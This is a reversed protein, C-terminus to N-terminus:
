GSWPFALTLFSNSYVSPKEQDAQSLESQLIHGATSTGGTVSSEAAEKWHTGEPQSFSPHLTKPTPKFTQITKLPRQSGPSHFTGEVTSSSISIFLQWPISNFPLPTMSHFLTVWAPLEGRSSSDNDEGEPIFLDGDEGEKFASGGMDTAATRAKGSPARSQLVLLLLWWRKGHPILDCAWM